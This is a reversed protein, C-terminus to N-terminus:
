YILIKESFKSYLVNGSAFIGANLFNHDLDFTFDLDASKNDGIGNSYNISNFKCGSFVFTTPNTGVKNSNFNLRINYDKDLDLTNFFNGSLNGTILLKTKIDGRAPFDIEKQIPFKYNLVKIDRRPISVNFNFNQIIENTFSVGTRGETEITINADGPLLINQGSLNSDNYNFSKPLVINNNTTYNFGSKLDLFQYPVGSGSLYFNINDIQYEQTVIPLSNNEISFSYRNLYANQFHILKHTKSNEDIAHSITTPNARDSTLSSNSLLDTDKDNIALYFDKRDLNGSNLIGSFMPLLSKNKFHGVSMNLRNENTLGDPVYSFILNIVPSGIQSKYVFRNSGFSELDIRQPEISYSVDQLKEIRKLLLNNALYFDGGPFQEGSYPAVFLSQTNYILRNRPM